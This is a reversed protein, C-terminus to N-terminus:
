LYIRNKHVMDEKLLQPLFIFFLRLGITVLALNSLSISHKSAGIHNILIKYYLIENNVSLEPSTQHQKQATLSM